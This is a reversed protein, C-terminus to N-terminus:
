VKSLWNVLRRLEAWVLPESRILLKYILFSLFLFFMLRSQPFRPRNEASFSGRYLDNHERQNLVAHNIALMVSFSVFEGLSM